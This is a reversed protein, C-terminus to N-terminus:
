GGNVEIAPLCCKDMNNIKGHRPHTAYKRQLHKKAQNTPWSTSWKNTCCNLDSINKPSRSGNARLDVDLTQRDIPVPMGLLQRAVIKRPSRCPKGRWDHFTDPATQFAITSRRTGKHWKHFTFFSNEAGRLRHARAALAHVTAQWRSVLTKWGRKVWVWGGVGGGWYGSIPFVFEVFILQWAADSLFNFWDSQKSRHTNTQTDTYIINIIINWFLRHLHSMYTFTYM